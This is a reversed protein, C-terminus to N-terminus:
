LRNASNQLVTVLPNNAIKKLWDLLKTLKENGDHASGQLLADIKPQYNEPGMLTFSINIKDINKDIFALYEQMVPINLPKNCAGCINPAFNKLSASTNNKNTETTSIDAQVNNNTSNNVNFM